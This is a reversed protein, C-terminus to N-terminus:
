EDNLLFMAMEGFRSSWAQENHKADPYEKYLCSAGARKLAAVLRKTELVTQMSNLPKDREATGIDVWIRLNEFGAANKEIQRTLWQDCWWASPSLAGVRGFVAHRTRGAELSVLGGLSSGAIATSNRGPDTRYAQDIAPKVKEEVFKLYDASRGGEFGPLSPSRPATASAVPTYEDLRSAGSNDIGVVIWPKIKKQEILLKMTEDVNWEGAFSTVDDFLNQGDHMYLVGYRQLSNSPDFYGPPLWVRITRSALSGGSGFNNLLVLDGTDTSAKPGAVANAWVQVVIHVTPGDAGTVVRNAVDAGSANKEVTQWSGRTLKFSMSEDAALSFHAQFQGDARRKMLFGDAKWNGAAHTSGALYVPEQTTDPVRAIITVGPQVQADNAVKCSTQSLGVLTAFVTFAISINTTLNLTRMRWEPSLHSAILAFIQPNQSPM